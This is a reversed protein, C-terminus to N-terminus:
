CPRQTEIGCWNAGWDHEVCARRFPSTQCTPWGRECSRLYERKRCNKGVKKEQTHNIDSISENHPSKQPWYRRDHDNGRHGFLQSQRTKATTHKEGNDTDFHWCGFSNDAPLSPIGTTLRSQEGACTRWQFIWSIQIFRVLAPRPENPRGAENRRPCAVRFYWESTRLSRLRSTSDVDRSLRRGTGAVPSLLSALYPPEHIALGRYTLKSMKFKIRYNVPLCHLQKLLPLSPSFHTARLVFHALCNKVHQLQSLDLPLTDHNTATDVMTEYHSQVNCNTVRTLKTPDVGLRGDARLCRLLCWRLLLCCCWCCCCCCCCCCGNRFGVM